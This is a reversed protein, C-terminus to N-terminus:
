GVPIELEQGLLHEMKDLVKAKVGLYDELWRLTKMSQKEFGEKLKKQNIILSKIKDPFEPKNLPHKTEWTFLQSQTPSEELGNVMTIEYNMCPVYTVKMAFDWKDKQAVLYYTVGMIDRKLVDM